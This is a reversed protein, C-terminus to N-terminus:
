PMIDGVAGIVDEPEYYCLALADGKDPSRKARKRFLPKKEIEFAGSSNTRYKREVLDQKLDDGPILYFTSSDLRTRINWYLETVLNAYEEPDSSRAGFHVCNVAWGNERCMSGVGSGVGTADITCREPPIGWEKAVRIVKGATQTLEQKRFTQQDLMGRDDGVVIVTEDAGFEAPDCGLRKAGREPGHTGEMALLVWDLPVIAEPVLHCFEAMVRMKYKISDKGWKEACDDVWRQTACGPPLEIKQERYWTLMEPVSFTFTQFRKDKFAEYFFGMPAGPTSILLLRANAGSLAPELAEFVEDDVGKAEDIILLLNEGHFGEINPQQDASFGFVWWEPGSKIDVTLCRGPYRPDRARARAHAARIESWLLKEVQRGTPATTIVKSPRWCDHWWLAVQAATFTKQTGHGAKVAVKAIPSSALAQCIRKAGGWVRANLVEDLYAVNDTRYRVREMSVRGLGHRLRDGLMSAASRLHTQTYSETRIM